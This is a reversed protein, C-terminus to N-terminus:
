GSSSRSRKSSVWGGLSGAVSYSGEGFTNEVVGPLLRYISGGTAADFEDRIAFVAEWKAITHENFGHRLAVDMLRKEILVPGSALAIADCLQILRDYPTYEIGDLYAQVWDREATLAGSPETWPGAFAAALKLPFSHTLCIRAADDYGREALLSHGDLIHHPDSKGPGYSGRGVDHLFGMVFAVEPDLDPTAAAIARATLGVHECHQVWPGPNRAMGDSILARAVDITPVKMM